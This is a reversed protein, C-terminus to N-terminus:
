TMKIMLLKGPTDDKGSVWQEEDQRISPSALQELHMRLSMIVNTMRFHNRDTDAPIVQETLIKGDRQFTYSDLLQGKKLKWSRYSHGIPSPEHAFRKYRLRINTDQSKSQGDEVFVLKFLKAEEPSQSDALERLSAPTVEVGDAGEAGAKKQKRRPKSSGFGLLETARQVHALARRTDM